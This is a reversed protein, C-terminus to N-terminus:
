KKIETVNIKRLIEQLDERKLLNNVFEIKKDLDEKISRCEKINKIEQHVIWWCNGGSSKSEFDKFLVKFNDSYESKYEITDLQTIGILVYQRGRKTTSFEIGIYFITEDIEQLKLFNRNWENGPLKYSIYRKIIQNYNNKIWKTTNDTKDSLYIEHVTDLNDDKACFAFIDEDDTENSNWREIFNAYQSFADAVNEPIGPIISCSACWDQIAAYSMLIFKKNGAGNSFTKYLTINNKDTESDSNYIVDQTDQAVFLCRPHEGQHTLYILIRRTYDPNKKGDCLWGWYDQLQAEHDCTRTKNEIVVLNAGNRIVIDPRRGPIIEERTVTSEQASDFEIGLRECFKKLFINGQGHKWSTNLLRAIIDSHINEKAGIGCLDYINFFDGNKIRNERATKKDNLREEIEKRLDSVECM